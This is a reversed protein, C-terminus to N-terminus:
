APRTNTRVQNPWASSCSRVRMPIAPIIAPCRDFDRIIPITPERPATASFSVVYQLTRGVTNRAIEVTLRSAVASFVWAVVWRGPPGPRAPQDASSGNASDLPENGRRRAEPESQGWRNEPDSFWGLIAFDILFDRFQPNIAM